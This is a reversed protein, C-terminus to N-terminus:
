RSQQWRSKRAPCANSAWVSRDNEGDDWALERHEIQQKATFALRSLLGGAPVELGRKSNLLEFRPPQQRGRPRDGPCPNGICMNGGQRHACRGVAVRRGLNTMGITEILDNASTEALRNGDDIRVVM